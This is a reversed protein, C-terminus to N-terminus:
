TVGRLASLLSRISLILQHADWSSIETATRWPSVGASSRLRCALLGGSRRTVVGSVRCTRRTASTILFCRAFTLHTITSSIWSSASSLRPEWSATMSSLSALSAPSCWLIPREAVTPDGDLTPEKRTPGPLLQVM